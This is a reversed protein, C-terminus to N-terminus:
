NKITKSVKKVKKIKEDVNDNKSSNTISENKSSDVINDNKSSDDISDNKKILKKTIKKKTAEKLLLNNSLENNNINIKEFLTENSPETNLLLNNPLEINNINKEGTLIENSVNKEGTLIENSISAEKKKNKIKSSLIKDTHEVEKKIKIKGTSIEVTEKININETKNEVIETKNEVTEILKRYIEYLYSWKKGKEDKENTSDIIKTNLECEKIETSILNLLNNNQELTNGKEIFNKFEDVSLNLINEISNMNNYYVDINIEKNNKIEFKKNTDIIEQKKYIDGIKSIYKEKEDNIALLNEFIVLNDININRCILVIDDLSKIKDVSKRFEDWELTHISTINMM